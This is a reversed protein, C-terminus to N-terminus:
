NRFKRYSVFFTEILSVLAILIIFNWWTLFRQSQLILTVIVLLSLIISQRSSIDIKKYLIEEKNMMTRFAFGVLSFTGVLSVFLSLYFFVFGGWGTGNPNTYYLVAFWTAWCLFTCTTLIILYKRLTM